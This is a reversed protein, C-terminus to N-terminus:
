IPKLLKYNVLFINWPRLYLFYKEFFEFVCFICQFFTLFWPLVPHAQQCHRNASWSHQNAGLEVMVYNGQKTNELVEHTQKPETKVGFFHNHLLTELFIAHNKLSWCKSMSKGNTKLFFWRCWKNGLFFFFVLDLNGLTM